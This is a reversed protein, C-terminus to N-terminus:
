PACHLLTFIRSAFFCNRWPTSTKKKPPYGWLPPPYLFFHAFNKGGGGQGWGWGLGVSALGMGFELGVWAVSVGAVGGMGCNSITPDKVGKEPEGNCQVFLARRVNATNFAHNTKSWM